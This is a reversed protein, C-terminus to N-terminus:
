ETVAAVSALEYEQVTGVPATISDPCFVSEISNFHPVTDPVTDTIMAFLQPVLM